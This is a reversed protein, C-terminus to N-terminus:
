VRNIKIKGDGVIIDGMNDAHNAGILERYYYLARTCKSMM